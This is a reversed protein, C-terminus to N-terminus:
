GRRINEFDNLAREKKTEVEQAKKLAAALRSKEHEIDEPKM